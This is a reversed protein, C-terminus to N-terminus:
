VHKKAKIEYLECKERFGKLNVQWQGGKLIQENVNEYISASALIKTKLKKNYQEIRSAMNVVGGIAAYKQMSDIGINGMVVRGYSLGSRIDITNEHLLLLYKNLEILAERMDFAAYVASLSPNADDDIGYISLFGDGYYDIIQGNHQKVVEGMSHFYRNLFHVIDYPHLSEAFLTYNAIDTFMVAVDKLYGLPKLLFRDEDRSIAIREDLEDLIPRKVTVNSGLIKTQCALRTNESFGLEKAIKDEVNTRMSCSKLGDLIYIRCTSCVGKGGCANFHPVGNRIAGALLTEEDEITFSIDDPLYKIM